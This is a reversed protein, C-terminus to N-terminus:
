LFLNVRIFQPQRLLFWGLECKRNQWKPPEYSERPLIYVGGNRLTPLAFMATDNSFTEARYSM